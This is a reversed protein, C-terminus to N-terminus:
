FFVETMATALTKSIDEIGGGESKQKEKNESVVRLAVREQNGRVAEGISKHRSQYLKWRSVSYDIADVFLEKTM